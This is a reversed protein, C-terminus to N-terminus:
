KRKSAWSFTVLSFPVRADATAPADMGWRSRLRSRLNASPVDKHRCRVRACRARAGKPKKRRREGRGLPFGPLALSSRPMRRLLWPTLLFEWRGSKIEPARQSAAFPPRFLRTRRVRTPALSRASKATLGHIAQRCFGDARLSGEAEGLARFRPHRKRPNSEKPCAFSLSGSAPIRASFCLSTLRTECRGALSLFDFAFRHAM